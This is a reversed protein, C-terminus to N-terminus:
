SNEAGTNHAMPKGVFCFWALFELNGKPGSISSDVGAKYGFGLADARQVVRDIAARRDGM